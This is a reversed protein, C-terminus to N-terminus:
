YFPSFIFFAGIKIEQEKHETQHLLSSNKKSVTVSPRLSAALRFDNVCRPPTVGKYPRPSFFATPHLLAGRSM